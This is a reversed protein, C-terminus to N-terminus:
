EKIIKVYRTSVPTYDRRRLLVGVDVARERGDAAPLTKADFRIERTGLQQMCQEVWALFQLAMFGGRHEPQIYYTDETSIPTQTHRSVALYLRMHGVLTRGADRITFQVLRGAREDGLAGDIDPRLAFAHRYRETELWQRDHLPTLEDLIDRFREAQFTYGKYAQPEFQAPDICHDGAAHAAIFIASAVEPTIREDFHAALARRLNDPTISM